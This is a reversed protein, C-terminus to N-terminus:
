NAAIRYRNNQALTENNSENTKQISFWKITEKIGKSLDYKPSWGLKKKANQWDLCSRKQEYPRTPEHLPIIDKNMTRIIKDFLSNVSTETCTSINFEGCNPNKCAMLFARAVDKVYVYDRTQEGNGYIVPQEGRLLKNVFIAVVGAEGESNQRPGYVNALRLAAYKLDKTLKYYSLYKEMTLKNISYPSLHKKSHNEKTPLIDTEGYVAASSAVIVKKVNNKISNELINLTGLINVETDNIPNAISAQVNVQAALHFVFDPKEKGFIDGIIADQINIKYFKAKPNINAEKGTSLNDIIIVEHGEGALLDVIHSGIFGAGGTILSKLM